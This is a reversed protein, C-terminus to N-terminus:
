ILDRVRIARVSLLVFKLVRRASAMDTVNNALWTDLQAATADQLQTWFADARLDARSAEIRTPPRPVFAQTAVNWVFEHPPEPVSEVVTLGRVDVGDLSHVIGALTGDANILAKM